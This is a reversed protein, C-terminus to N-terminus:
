CLHEGSAPPPTVPLCRAPPVASLTHFPSFPPTRWFNPLLVENSSGKMSGNTSGEDLIWAEIQPTVLGLPLIIVWLEVAAPLGVDSFGKQLRVIIASCAECEALRSGFLRAVRQHISFRRCELQRVEPVDRVDPVKLFPLLLARSTCM